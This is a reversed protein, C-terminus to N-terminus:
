ETVEILVVLEPSPLVEHRLRRYLVAKKSLPGFKKESGRLSAEKQIVDNSWASM